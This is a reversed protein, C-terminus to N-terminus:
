ASGMDRRCLWNFLKGPTRGKQAQEYNSWIIHEPLKYAVKCYFEYSQQSHFNDVLKLAILEVDRASKVGKDKNGNDIVNDNNVLTKEVNDIVNNGYYM